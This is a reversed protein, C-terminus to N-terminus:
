KRHSLIRNEGITKFAGTKHTREEAKKGKLFIRIPAGAFSFRERLQKTLYRKYSPMLLKPYNIFLTFSPPASSVQTAYYIRLRKGQIMAPPNLAMAEEFFRNLEGTTIRKSCAELAADIIPFLKATGKGTLASLVVIPCHELGPASEKLERIRHEQREAHVLDWKNLLLICSKGAQEIQSFIKKEQVCLGRTADIMVCCIDSRHIARETRIAAFKDVVAKESGKKRIGATDIFRYCTGDFTIDLDVSDRTTGALPSVACRKSQSLTNILTSKGVNPTGIISIAHTAQSRAVEAKEPLIKILHELLDDAGRGHLASVGGMMEIGLRHFAHILHEKNKEDIKNVALALPKGLKKLRRALALDEKLPGTEADVVLVLGDAEEIAALAAAEIEDAFPDDSGYPAIGGTDILDIATGFLDIRCFLRDRTTGEESDTIALRRGSLRNFLSSKGVNPRGVLAITQPRDM